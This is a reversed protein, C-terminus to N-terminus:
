KKQFTVGLWQTRESGPVTNGVWLQYGIGFNNTMQYDLAADWSYRVQDPRLRVNGLIGVETRPGTKFRWKPGLQRDYMVQCGIDGVWPDSTKMDKSAGGTVEIYGYRRQQRVGTSTLTHISDGDHDGETQILVLPYWRYRDKGYNKDMFRFATKLRDLRVDETKSYDSDMTFNLIGRQFEADMAWAYTWVGEDESRAESASLLVKFKRTECNTAHVRSATLTGFLVAALGTLFRALGALRTV